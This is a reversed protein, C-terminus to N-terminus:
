INLVNLALKPKGKFRINRYSSQSMETYIAEFSIIGLIMFFVSLNYHCHYYYHCFYGAMNLLVTSFLRLYM